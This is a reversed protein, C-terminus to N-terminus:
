LCYDHIRNELILWYRLFQITRTPIFFRPPIIRGDNQYVGFKKNLIWKWFSSNIKKKSVYLFFNYSQHNMLIPQFPFMWNSNYSHWSKQIFGFKANWILQIQLNFIQMEFGVFSLQLKYLTNRSSHSLRIGYTLTMLLRLPKTQLICPSTWKIPLILLEIVRSCVSWSSEFKVNTRGVELVKSIRVLFILSM